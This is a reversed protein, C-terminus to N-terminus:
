CTNVPVLTLNQFSDDVDDRLGNGLRIKAKSNRFIYLNLEKWKKM